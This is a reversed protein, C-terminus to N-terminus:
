YCGLIFEYDVLFSAKWLLFCFSRSILRKIERGGGDGVVGEGAAGPFPCLAIIEGVPVGM